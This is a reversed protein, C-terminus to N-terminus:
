ACPYDSFSVAETGSAETFFYSLSPWCLFGPGLVLISSSPCSGDLICPINLAHLSFVRRYALYTWCGRCGSSCVRGAGGPLAWLPVRTAWPRRQRQGSRQRGMAAACYVRAAVSATGAGACSVSGADYHSRLRALMDEGQMTRRELELELSAITMEQAAYAEENWFMRVADHAELRVSQVLVWAIVAMLIAFFRLMACVWPYYAM